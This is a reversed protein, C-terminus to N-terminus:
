KQTSDPATRVDIGSLGPAELYYPGPIMSLRVPVDALWAAMRGLIISSFLHYQVVDPRLRRFARALTIVRRAADLPKGGFVDLEAVEFSINDATFRPALTGGAGSIIATADHGRHRLARVQEHMWAAGNETGAVHLVRLPRITQGSPSMGM